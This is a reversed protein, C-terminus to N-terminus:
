PPASEPAANEPDDVPVVPYASEPVPPPAQPVPHRSEVLRHIRLALTQHAVASNVHLVNSMVVVLYHHLPEGAPSEIIAVSALRNTKDGKYKRAAAATPM